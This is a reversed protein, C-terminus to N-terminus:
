SFTRVPEKSHRAMFTVVAGSDIGGSLFAGIPVDAIMRIKVSEELVSLIQEQWEGETKEEEKAYDLSWYREKRLIKKEIDLVLFHAAELKQIGEYGTLPAPLYMMTLFHHIAERDIARPCLRHRLLAKLESAFLFTKGDFFYKFPKKGVRDRACFLLQKRKDYIAFAFMGRLRELCRTGYHEYLALLVETDSRSRFVYGKAELEARKEQFNYIEGNFTVVIESAPTQMPQAGAPSLDVIALRRHGLGVSRDIYTGRGDPGRHALADTMADLVETDVPRGDMHVIGAIGCM